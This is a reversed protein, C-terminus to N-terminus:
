DATVNYGSFHRLARYVYYGGTPLPTVYTEMYPDVAGEDVCVNMKDCFPIRFTSYNQLNPDPFYLTVPLLSAPNFRMAPYFEAHQHGLADKWSRVEFNINATALTCPKKWETPGYTNGTPSCLAGPPIAIVNGTNAGFVILKGLSPTVTFSQVTTDGRMTKTPVVSSLAPYMATLNIVANTKVAASITLYGSRNRLLNAKPSTTDTCATLTVALLAVAAGLARRLATPRPHYLPRNPSM